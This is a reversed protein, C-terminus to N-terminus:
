WAIGPHRLWDGITSWVSPAQPQPPDFLDAAASGVAITKDVIFRDTLVYQYYGEVHYVVCVLPDGTAPDLDCSARHVSSVSGFPYAKTVVQIADRGGDRVHRIPQVAHERLWAGMGGSLAAESLLRLTAHMLPSVPQIHVTITPTRGNQPVGAGGSTVESVVYEKGDRVYDQNVALANPAYSESLRLAADVPDVWVQV